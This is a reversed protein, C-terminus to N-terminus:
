PTPVPTPVPGSSLPIGSYSFEDSGLMALRLSPLEDPLLARLSVSYYLGGELFVGQNKGQLLSLIRQKQQATLALAARPVTYTLCGMDANPGTQDVPIVGCEYIALNALDIDKLTWTPIVQTLDPSFDQHALLASSTGTYRHLPGNMADRISTLANGLHHYEDIAQASESLNGFPGYEFNYSHQDINLQLFTANQDPVDYFQQQSFTLLRDTDVLTHLLQELADTTLQGEQMNLGPGLIFSGDGYVSIEPSIELTGLRGGGYFTRILVDQPSSSYTITTGSNTSFTHSQKTQNTNQSSDCASFLLSMLCLLSLM